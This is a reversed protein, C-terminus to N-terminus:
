GSTKGAVPRTSAENARPGQFPRDLHHRTFWAAALAQWKRLALADWDFAAALRDRDRLIAPDEAAGRDLTATVIALTADPDDGPCFRAGHYTEFLSRTVELDTLFVPTGSALGELIPIGFAEFDSLLFVGM